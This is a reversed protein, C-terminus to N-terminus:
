SGQKNRYLKENEKGYGTGYLKHPATMSVANNRELIANSIFEKVKDFDGQTEQIDEQATDKNRLELMPHIWSLM